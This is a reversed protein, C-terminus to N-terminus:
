MYTCMCTSLCYFVNLFFFFHDCIFVGEVQDFNRKDHFCKGIEQLVTDEFLQMCFYYMVSCVYKNPNMCLTEVMPNFCVPYRVEEM